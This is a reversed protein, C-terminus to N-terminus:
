EASHNQRSLQLYKKALEVFQGQEEPSKFARKRVVVAGGERTFFDVSDETVVIEAVSKWEHTTQRNMQRTWVGAPTLEVECIFANLDGLKEKHFSRLRKEVARKHAGPYLLASVGAVILGTLAGKLPSATFFVFALTWVIWSLIANVVLGKWRWSHVVKSRALVRKIVDISDEQTFEFQVRMAISIVLWPL